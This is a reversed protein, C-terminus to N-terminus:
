DKSSSRIRDSERYHNYDHVAMVTKHSTVAELISPLYKEFSRYEYVM